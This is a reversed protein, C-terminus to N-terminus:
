LPLVQQHQRPALEFTRQVQLDDVEAFEELSYGVLVGAELYDM